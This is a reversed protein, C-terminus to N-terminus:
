ARTVVAQLLGADLMFTEVKLAPQSGTEGILVDLGNEGIVVDLGNEGIIAQIGTEGIIAQIGTEGIIAQIGTEGIIAQIGNEGIIAQVGSEGILAEIGTEGIISTVMVNTLEYAQEGGPAASGDQSIYEISPGPRLHKGDTKVTVWTLETKKAPTGAVYVTGDPTSADAGHRDKTVPGVKLAGGERELHVRKDGSMVDISQCTDSGGAFTIKLGDPLVFSSAGAMRWAEGKAKVSGDCAISLLKGKAPSWKVGGKGRPKKKSATSSLRPLRAKSLAVTSKLVLQTAHGPAKTEVVLHGGQVFVDLTPGPPSGASANGAPGFGMVSAVLSGFVAITASM